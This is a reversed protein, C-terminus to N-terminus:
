RNIGHTCSLRYRSSCVSVLSSGNEDLDYPSILRDDVLQQLRLSIQNIRAIGDALTHWNKWDRKNFLRFAPSSQRRMGRLTLHPSLSIGGAGYQMSMTVRAIIRLMVSTYKLGFSLRNHKICREHFPCGRRHRTLVESSVSVSGLNWSQASEVVERRRCNCRQLVHQEERGTVILSTQVGQIDNSPGVAVVLSQEAMLTTQQQVQQENGNTAILSTQLERIIQPSGTVAVLSQAKDSDVNGVTPLAQPLPMYTTQYNLLLAAFCEKFTAASQQINKEYRTASAAKIFSRARSKTGSATIRNLVNELWDVEKRCADFLTQVDPISANDIQNQQVRAELIELNRILLHHQSLIIQFSLPLNKSKEQYEKLFKLFRKSYDALQLIAAISGVAVLAEAM